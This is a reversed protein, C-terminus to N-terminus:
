RTRMIRRRQTDAWQTLAHMAWLGKDDETVPQSLDSSVCTAEIESRTGNTCRKNRRHCPAVSLSHLPSHILLIDIPLVRLVFLYEGPPLLLFSSHGVLRRHRSARRQIGEQNVRPQKAAGRAKRGSSECARRRVKCYANWAGAGNASTSASPRGVKRSRLTVRLRRRM